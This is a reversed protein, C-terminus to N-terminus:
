RKQHSIEKIFDDYWETYEALGAKELAKRVKENAKIKFLGRINRVKPSLVHFCEELSDAIKKDVNLDIDDVESMDIYLYIVSREWMHNIFDWLTNNFSEVDKTNMKGSVLALFIKSYKRIIIDM